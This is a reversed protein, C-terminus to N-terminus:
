SFQPSFISNLFTLSLYPWCHNPHLTTLHNFYKSVSHSPAATNAPVSRWSRTEWVGGFNPLNKHVGVINNQLLNLTQRIKRALSCHQYQSVYRLAHCLPRHITFHTANVKATLTTAVLDWNSSSLLKEENLLLYFVILGLPWQINPVSSPIPSKVCRM